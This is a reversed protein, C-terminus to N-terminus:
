KYEHLVLAVSLSDYPNGRETHTQVYKSLLTRLNFPLTSQICVTLPALAHRCTLHWRSCTFLFCAPQYSGWLSWLLSFSLIFSSHLEEQTSCGKRKKKIGEMGVASVLEVRSKYKTWNGFESVKRPLDKKSKLHGPTLPHRALEKPLAHSEQDWSQSNLGWMPHLSWEFLGLFIFDVYDPFNLPRM